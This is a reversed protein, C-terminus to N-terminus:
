RSPPLPGAGPLLDDRRRLGRAHVQGDLVVYMVDGPDGQRFITEGEIYAEVNESSQFLNILNLM